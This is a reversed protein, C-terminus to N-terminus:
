IRHRRCCRFTCRFWTPHPWCIMSRCPVLRLRPLAQRPTSTVSRRVWAFSRRLWRVLGITGFGILGVQLAEIGALNDAVMRARFKAYNGAKIEADSWAMRRLLASAATVVYEAVAANSGGPVNAVPIGLRTLTAQDLRDVGAGTVQVIRLATGEFLDPALKPGVAPIVLADSSKMLGAVQADVPAHYAVELCAPAAADVRTFDTEPRLCLVRNTM